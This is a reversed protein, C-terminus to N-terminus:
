PFTGMGEPFERWVVEGWSFVADFLACREPESARDCHQYELRVTELDVSLGQRPKLAQSVYAQTFDISADREEYAHCFACTTLTEDFMVREFPEQPLIERTIPFELEAKLSRTTSRLEGFELLHSGSGEPVVTMILPDSFLFMRPSRSGTAPQASLVSTAAHLSLPRALSEVFCALTVPKPMTNLIAVVDMVSRPANTQAVPTACASLPAQEAETAEDPGEPSCSLLVSSCLLLRVGPHGLAKLTDRHVRPM